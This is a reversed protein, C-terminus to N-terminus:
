FSGLVIHYEIPNSFISDVHLSFTMSTPLMTSIPKVETMKTSALLDMVYQWQSLFLGNQHPIVKVSLFYGFPKLDKLSSWQALLDVFCQISLAYDGIIIIDHVYMLLYIIKSATNLVYLSTDSPSSVLFWHFKHYWALPAQKLSYIAKHLKCVHSSYNANTFSPPQAMYM